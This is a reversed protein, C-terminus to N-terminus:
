GVNHISKKDQNPEGYLALARLCRQKHAEGRNAPIDVNPIRLGFNKEERTYELIKACLHSLKAEIDNSPIADWDLWQDHHQYDVFERSYLVGTQAYKAWHIRKISDGAEYDRLGGFDSSGFRYAIGDEQEEVHHTSSEDLELLYPAPYIIAEAELQVYSWAVSLGTPYRTLVELRPITLRGRNEASHSLYFNDSGGGELSVQIQDEKQWGIHISQKQRGKPASVNIEFRCKGGAFCPEAGKAILKLGSLNHHTYFINIVLLALLWFCVVYVLSNQFNIGLFYLVLVMVVLALSSWTPIIFIRQQNLVVERQPPLRRKLWRHAYAHM